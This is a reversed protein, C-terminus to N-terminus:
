VPLDSELIRRFYSFRKKINKKSAQYNLEDYKQKLYNYYGIQNNSGTEYSKAQLAIDYLVQMEVEKFEYDCAAAYFALEQDEYGSQILDEELDESSLFDELSIQDIHNTNKMITFKLTLIKGGKGKKGYPEYSYKIDTNEELAQQCSDLVRTKFREWRPYETPLIGLLEKLEDIDIIREGVHEYQKLIEYMRLQNSSKLRLANWLQYTFYKEKFEFMLPLAKDHADIEIFWNGNEDMDFSCEKFIQFRVFGGNENPIGVIKCLLNDVTHKFHQMNLKGLEMIKQFDSIYFRVVRTNINRPNIKALYISFFRLEQLSMNNSRLENLVNRKEVIYEKKIAM